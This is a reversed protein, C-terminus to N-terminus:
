NENIIINFTLSSLLSKMEVIKETLQNDYQALKCLLRKIEDRRIRWFSNLRSSSFIEITSIRRLNRWHDGYCSTTM